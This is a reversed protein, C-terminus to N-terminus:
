VNRGSSPPVMGPLLDDKVSGTSGIEGGGFGAGPARVTNLLPSQHLRRTGGGPGFLKNRRRKDGYGRM